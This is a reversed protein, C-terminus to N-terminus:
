NALFLEKNKAKNGKQRECSAALLARLFRRFRDRVVRSLLGRNTNEDGLGLPIFQLHAGARGSERTGELPGLHSGFDAPSDKLAGGFGPRRHAGAVGEEFEVGGAGFEGQPFSFSTHNGSLCVQVLGRPTGSAALFQRCFFGDAIAFQIAQTRPAIAGCGGQAEGLNMKCACQLVERVRGNSRWEVPNHLADIGIRTVEETGSRRDRHDDIERADPDVCSHGRAFCRSQGNTVGHLDYEVGSTPPGKLGQNLTNALDGIWTRAVKGYLDPHWVRVSGNAIADRRRQREVRGGLTIAREDRPGGKCTRGPAGHNKDDFARALDLSCRAPHDAQTPAILVLDFNEISNLCSFHHDGIAM